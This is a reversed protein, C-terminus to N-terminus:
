GKLSQLHTIFTSGSRYSDRKKLVLVKFAGLFDRKFFTYLLPNIISSLYRIIMFAQANKEVLIPDVHLMVLPQLSFVVTLVFWPLWCIAYVAAMTSFVFLCKRENKLKKRARSCNKDQDNIMLQGSRSITKFMIIQACIMFSYPVLFVIVICFIAHALQLKPWVQDRRKSYLAFPFFSIVASALWIGALIRRAMKMGFLRRKFPFRIAIFKEATIALIHFAALVALFNHCVPVLFALPENDAPPQVVRMMNILFLPINVAGTLLDSLALGLLIYNAPTRLQHRKCFLVMVLSNVLVIVVALPVLQAVIKYNLPPALLLPTGSQNGNESTNLEMTNEPNNYCEPIGTTPSSINM